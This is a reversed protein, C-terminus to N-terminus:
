IAYVSIYISLSISISVSICIYIDGITGTTRPGYQVAISKKAVCQLGLSCAQCVPGESTNSIMVFGSDCVCDFRHATRASWTPQYAVPSLCCCFYTYVYTIFIYMHTCISYVSIYMRSMYVHSICIFM